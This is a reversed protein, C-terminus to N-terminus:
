LIWMLVLRIQWLYEACNEELDGCIATELGRCRSIKRWNGEKWSGWNKWQARQIECNTMLGDNGIQEDEERLNKLKKDLQFM